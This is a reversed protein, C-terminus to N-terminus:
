LGEDCERKWGRKYYTFEKVSKSFLILMGGLLGIIGITWYYPILGENGSIGSSSYHIAANIFFNGKGVAGLGFLIRMWNFGLILVISIVVQILIYLVTFGLMALPLSLIINGVAMAYTIIRGIRIKKEVCSIDSKKQPPLLQHRAISFVFVLLGNGIVKIGYVIRGAAVSLMSLHKDNQNGKQEGGEEKKKLQKREYKDSFYHGFICIALFVFLFVHYEIFM